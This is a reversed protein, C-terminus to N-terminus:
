KNLSEIYLYLLEWRLNGDNEEVIKKISEHQLNSFPPQKTSNLTKGVNGKPSSISTMRIIDNVISGNIPKILGGFRIFYGFGPCSSIKSTHIIEPEFHLFIYGPFLPEVVPRLYGPRDARPRYYCSQPIFTDVNMRALFMQLKFANHKGTKHCALYWGM